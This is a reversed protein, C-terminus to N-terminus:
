SGLGRVVLWGIVACDVLAIVWTRSFSHVGPRADAHPLAAFENDLAVAMDTRDERTANRM